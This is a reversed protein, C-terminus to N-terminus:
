GEKNTKKGGLGRKRRLIELFAFEHSFFKSQIVIITGVSSHRFLPSILNLTIKLFFIQPWKSNLGCIMYGMHMVLFVLFSQPVSYCIIFLKKQLSKIFISLEKILHQRSWKKQHQLRLCWVAEHQCWAVIDLITQWKSQQIIPRFIMLTASNLQLLVLMTIVRKVSM